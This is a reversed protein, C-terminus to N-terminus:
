KSEKFDMRVERFKTSRMNSYSFVYVRDYEDVAARLVEILKSKLQKGKTGTKTLSM